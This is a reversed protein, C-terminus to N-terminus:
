PASGEWWATKIRCYRPFLVKVQCPSESHYVIHKQRVKLTSSKRTTLTVDLMVETRRQYRTGFPVYPIHKDEDLLRRLVMEVVNM